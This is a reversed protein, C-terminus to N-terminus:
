DYCARFKGLYAGCSPCHHHTDQCNDCLFPLCCCLVPCLLGALVWAFVGAHLDVKTLIHAECSPCQMPVPDPGVPDVGVLVPDVASVVPVSTSVVPVTASVQANPPKTSNSQTVDLSPTQTM